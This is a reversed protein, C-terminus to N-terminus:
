RSEERSWKFAQKEPLRLMQLAFAASSLKGANTSSNIKTALGHVDLVGCATRGLYPKVSVSRADRRSRGTDTTLTRLAVEDQSSVGFELGERPAKFTM